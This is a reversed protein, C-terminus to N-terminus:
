GPFSGYVSDIKVDEYFKEPEQQKLSILMMNLDFLNYFDPISFLIEKDSLISVEM